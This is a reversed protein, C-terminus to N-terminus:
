AHHKKKSEKLHDAVIRRAAELTIGEERAHRLYGQRFVSSADTGLHIEMAELILLEDGNLRVNKKHIRESKAMTSIICLKKAYEAVHM